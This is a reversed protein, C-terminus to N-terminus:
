DDTPEFEGFYYEEIPHERTEDGCREILPETQQDLSYDRIARGYPDSDM